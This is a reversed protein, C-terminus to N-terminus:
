RTMVIGRNNAGGNERHKIKGRVAGKETSVMKLKRTSNYM